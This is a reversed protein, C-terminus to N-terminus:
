RAPNVRRLIVPLLVCPAYTLWLFFPEFHWLGLTHYRILVHYSLFQTVTLLLWALSLRTLPLLCLFPIAWTFYWSFANASVLPILSVLLLAGRVPEWNRAAIWV